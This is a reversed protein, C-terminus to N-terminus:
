RPSGCKMLCNSEHFNKINGAAYEITECVKTDLRRYGNEIEAATVKINEKLLKVKDFKETYELVAADGRLKIDDSVDRALKMHESIDIEARRLIFNKTEDSTDAWKHININM